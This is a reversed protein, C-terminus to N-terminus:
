LLRAGRACQRWRRGSQSWPRPGAFSQLWARRPEDSPRLLTRAPLPASALVKPLQNIDSMSLEFKESVAAEFLAAEGLPNGLPDVRGLWTAGITRSNM